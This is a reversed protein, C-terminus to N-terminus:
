MRDSDKRAQSRTKISWSTSKQYHKPPLYKSGLDTSTDSYEEQITPPTSYPYHRLFCVREQELQNEQEQEQLEQEQGM